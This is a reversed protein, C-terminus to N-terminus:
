SQIDTIQGFENITISSISTYTGPTVGSPPLSITIDASLDGGGELGGGAHINRNRLANLTAQLQAQIGGLTRILNTLEDLSLSIDDTTLNVTRALLWQRMFYPTPHGNSDVIQVNRQLPDVPRVRLVESAKPTNM